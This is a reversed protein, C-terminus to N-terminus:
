FRGGGKKLTGHQIRNRKDPGRIKEDTENARKRLAKGHKKSRIEGKGVDGVGKKGWSIKEQRPAFSM